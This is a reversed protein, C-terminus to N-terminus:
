NKGDKESLNNHELKKGVIYLPRQKVEEFVKGIYEGLIGIGVLQIGGLFLVSVALTTWGLVADQAIYKSYLVHGLLLLSFFGLILGVYFAIRLPINSFSTIGDLAFHLMKKLSFKSTGAFRAPAVFEVMKTKFGLNNVIGRIFRAREKYLKFAEVVKKDMLRFDSGGPTIHVKSIKNILKYYIKSTLKKFVSADDTSKRITQVIEYGNEWEELLNPILEPPHQLDGDMTIIADGIANDIGCSIAIQHGFNRSLLFAKVKSDKKILENLIIVSRDKSGDDIYILEYDYELNNFVKKIRNYFEQLNEEENFVPVIISIKKM